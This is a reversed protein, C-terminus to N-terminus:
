RRAAGAEKRDWVHGLGAAYARLDIGSKFNELEPDTMLKKGVARSESYGGPPPSPFPHGVEGCNYVAVARNAYM